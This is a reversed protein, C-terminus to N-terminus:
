CEGSGHRKDRRIGADGVPLLAGDVDHPDGHPVALQGTSLQAARDFEAHGALHFDHGVALANKGQEGLPDALRDTEALPAETNPIMAYVQRSSLSPKSM